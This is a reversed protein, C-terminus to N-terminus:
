GKRVVDPLLQLLKVLGVDVGGLRAAEHPLEDVYENRLSQGGFKALASAQRRLKEGNTSKMIAEWNPRSLEKKAQRTGLLPVEAFDALL